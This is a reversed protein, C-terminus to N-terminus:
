VESWDFDVLRDFHAYYHWEFNSAEGLERNLSAILHEARKHDEVEVTVNVRIM